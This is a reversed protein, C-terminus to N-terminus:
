HEIVLTVLYEGHRIGNSFSRPLYAACGNAGDPLDRAQLTDRVVIGFVNLWEVHYSFEAVIVRYQSLAHTLRMRQTVRGPVDGGRAKQLVPNVFGLLADPKEELAAPM